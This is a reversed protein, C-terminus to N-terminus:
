CRDAHMRPMLPGNDDDDTDYADQRVSLRVWLDSFRKMM